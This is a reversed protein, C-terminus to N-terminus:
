ILCSLFAFAIPSHSVIQASPLLAPVHPDSGANPNPIICFAPGAYNFIFPEDASPVASTFPQVHNEINCRANQLEIISLCWCM